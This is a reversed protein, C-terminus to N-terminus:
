RILCDRNARLKIKMMFECSINACEIIILLLVIMSLLVHIYFIYCSFFCVPNCYIIALVNYFNYLWSNKSLLETESNIEASTTTLTSRHDNMPQRSGNAFVQLFLNYEFRSKICLISNSVPASEKEDDVPHSLPLTHDSTTDYNCGVTVSSFPTTGDTAIAPSTVPDPFIFRNRKSSSLSSPQSIYIPASTSNHDVPQQEIYPKVDLM